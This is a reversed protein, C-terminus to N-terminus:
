NGTAYNNNKEQKNRASKRFNQLEERIKINNSDVEDELDNMKENNANIIEEEKSKNKTHRKKSNLKGGIYGVISSAIVICTGIIGKIIKKQM